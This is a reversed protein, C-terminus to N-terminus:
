KDEGNEETEEVSTAEGATGYTRKSGASLLIGDMTSVDSSADSSKKRRDGADRERLFRRSGESPLGTRRVDSLLRSPSSSRWNLTMRRPREGAGEGFAGGM